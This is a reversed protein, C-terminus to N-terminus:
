VFWPDEPLGSANSIEQKVDKREIQVYDKDQKWYVIREVQGAKPSKQTMSVVPSVYKVSTIILRPLVLFQDTTSVIKKDKYSLIAWRSEDMTRVALDRGIPLFYLGVRSYRIANKFFVRNYHHKGIILYYLGDERHLAYVEWFRNEFTPQLKRSRPDKVTTIIEYIFCDESVVFRDCGKWIKKFKM